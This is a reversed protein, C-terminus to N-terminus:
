QQQKKERLPTNKVLVALFRWKKTSKWTLLSPLGIKARNGKELGELFMLFGFNESKKLPHM